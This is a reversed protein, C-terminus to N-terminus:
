SSRRDRRPCRGSAPLRGTSRCTGTTEDSILVARGAVIVDIRDLDAQTLVNGLPNGPSSIVVARTRDSMAAALSDLDVAGTYPDIDYSRVQAGALVAAYLYLSSSPRPIVIEDGDQACLLTCLNGFIGGAGMGIIVSGPDVPMALAQSEHAAVAARLEPLGLPYVLDAGTEDALATTMAQTIAPHAGLECNGLTLRIVDDHFRELEQAAEELELMGSRRALLAETNHRGADPLM